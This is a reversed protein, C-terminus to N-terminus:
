GNRKGRGQWQDAVHVHGGGATAAEIQDQNWTVPIEKTENSNLLAPVQEPFEIEQGIGSELM